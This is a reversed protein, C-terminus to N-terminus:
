WRTSCGATGSPSRIDATEATDGAEADPELYRSGHGQPDKADRAGPRAARSLAMGQLRRDGGYGGPPPRRRIAQRRTQSLIGRVTGRRTRPM